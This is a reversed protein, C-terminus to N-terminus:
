CSLKRPGCGKAAVASLGGGGTGGGGRHGAEEAGSSGGEGTGCGDSGRFVGDGDARGGRRRLSCGRKRAGPLRERSPM